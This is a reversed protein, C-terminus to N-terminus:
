TLLLGCVVCLLMGCRLASQSFRARKYLVCVRGKQTRPSVYNEKKKAKFTAKEIQDDVTDVSEDDEDM